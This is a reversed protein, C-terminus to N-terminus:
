PVGISSTAVLRAPETVILYQKGAVNQFEQTTGSPWEIRITEVNKADGLGFHAELPSSRSGSGHSIERM